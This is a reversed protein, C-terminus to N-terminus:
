GELAGFDAVVPVYIADWFMWASTADAAYALLCAYEVDPEPDQYGTYFMVLMEQLVDLNSREIRGLVHLQYERPQLAVAICVLEAFQTASDALWGQNYSLGAVVKLDGQVPTEQPNILLVALEGDATYTGVVQVWGAAQGDFLPVFVYSQAWLPDEERAGGGAVEPELPLAPDPEPAPSPIPKPIPIPIPRPRIPLPIPFPRIPLPLPRPWIPVPTPLPPRPIIIPDDRAIVIGQKDDAFGTMVTGLVAVTLLCILVIRLARYIM